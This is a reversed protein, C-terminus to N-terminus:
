ITFKQEESLRTGIAFVEAMFIVLVGMVLNWYSLPFSTDVMWTSGELLRAAETRQCWEFVGNLLEACILVVGIIRTYLINHRDLTREDRISKRLSNIILGMLIFIALKSFAILMMALYLYGNDAFMRFVVQPAPDHSAKRVLLSIQEVRSNLQCLTDAPQGAELPAFKTYVPVNVAFYEYCNGKDHELRDAMEMGDSFGRAFDVSGHLAGALLLLLFVTYIALLRKLQTKKTRM